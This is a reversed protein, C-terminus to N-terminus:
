EAGELEEEVREEEEEDGEDEEEEEREEEELEDEEEEEEEPLLLYPPPIKGESFWQFDKRLGAGGPKKNTPPTLPNEPPRLREEAASPFIGKPFPTTSRSNGEPLRQRPRPIM